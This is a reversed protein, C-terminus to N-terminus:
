VSILQFNYAGPNKSIYENFLIPVDDNNVVQSGYSVVYENNSVRQAILLM